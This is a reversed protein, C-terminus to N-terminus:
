ESMLLPSLLSEASRLPIHSLVTMTMATDWYLPHWSESLGARVTDVTEPPPPTNPRGLRSYEIERVPTGFLAKGSPIPTSGPYHIKQVNLSTLLSSSSPGEREPLQGLKREPAAIRGWAAM